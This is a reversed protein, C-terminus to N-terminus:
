AINLQLLELELALPLLLPSGHRRRGPETVMLIECKM